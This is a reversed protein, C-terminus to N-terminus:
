NSIYSWNIEHSSTVEAFLAFIGAMALASAVLVIVFVWRWRLLVGAIVYVPFLLFVYRSMSLLPDFDLRVSCLYRSALWSIRM